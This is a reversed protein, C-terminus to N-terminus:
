GLSEATIPRVDLDFRPGLKESLRQSPVAANCAIVTGM